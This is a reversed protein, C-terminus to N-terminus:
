NWIHISLEDSLKLFAEKAKNSIQPNNSLYGIVIYQQDTLKIADYNQTKFIEGNEDIAYHLPM